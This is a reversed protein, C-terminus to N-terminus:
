STGAVRRGRELQISRAAFDGLISPEHEVVVAVVGRALEARLTDRLVDVGQVDLGTAPEDLLVLDPRHVLARALALRQRQGRSLARAPRDAISRLEFRREAEAWASEVDLGYVEAVLALNQRATLDGYALLEHSVWGIRGRATGESCSPEFALTGTTPRIALGLIGLLTSKGSGNAGVIRTLGPRLELDVGRLAFTSGYRKSLGSGVVREFRSV